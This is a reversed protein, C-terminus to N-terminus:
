YKHHHAGANFWESWNFADRKWGDIDPIMGCEKALKSFSTYYISYNVFGKNQFITNLNSLQAEDNDPGIRFLKKHISANLMNERFREIRRQYKEFVSEPKYLNLSNISTFDHVFHIGYKRNIVKISIGKEEHWDDNLLPFNNSIDTTELNVFLDNFDNDILTNLFKLHPIRLWDFPYAADRLGQKQLQYAVSCDSGLSIYITKNQSDM